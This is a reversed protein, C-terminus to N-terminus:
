LERFFDYGFLWIVEEILLNWGGDVLFLIIVYVDFVGVFMLFLIKLLSWCWYNYFYWSLMFLDERIVM